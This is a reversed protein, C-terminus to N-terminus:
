KINHLDPFSVHQKIAHEKLKVVRLSPFSRSQKCDPNLDRLEYHWVRNLVPKSGTESLPLNYPIGQKPCRPCSVKGHGAARGRIDWIRSYERLKPSSTGINRVSWSCIGENRGHGMFDLWVQSM